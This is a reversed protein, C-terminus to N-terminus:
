QGRWAGGGGGHGGNPCSTHIPTVVSKTPDPLYPWQIRLSARGRMVDDECPTAVHKHLTVTRKVSSEDSKCENDPWIEHLAIHSQHETCVDLGIGNFPTDNTDGSCEVLGWTYVKNKHKFMEKPGEVQCLYKGSGWNWGTSQRDVSSLLGTSNNILVGKSPDPEFTPNDAAFSLKLDIPFSLQNTPLVYQATVRKTTNNAVLDISVPNGNADTASEVAVRASGLGAIDVVADNGSDSVTVTGGTVSEVLWSLASPDSAVLHQSVRVGLKRATITAAQSTTPSTYSLANSGVTSSNTLNTYQTIPAFNVVPGDNDTEFGFGDSSDELVTGGLLTGMMDYNGANTEELSPEPLADRDPESVTLDEADYLSEIDSLSAHPDLLDNWPIVRQNGAADRLVVDVDGALQAPTLTFTASLQCSAWPIEVAPNGNGDIGDGLCSATVDHQPSPVSGNVLAKIETAGSEAMSMDAESGPDRDGPVGDTATLSVSVNGTSPDPDSVSWTGLEPAIRDIGYYRANIYGKGTVDSIGSSTVQLGDRLLDPDFTWAPNWGSQPCPSAATGSCSSTQTPKTVFAGDGDFGAVFSQSKVGLGGDTANSTV